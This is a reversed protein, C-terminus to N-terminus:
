RLDELVHKFLFTSWFGYYITLGLLIVYSLCWPFLVNGLIPNLLLETGIPILFAVGSVLLLSVSLLLELKATPAMRNTPCRFGLRGFYNCVSSAARYCGVQHGVLMATMLSGYWLKGHCAFPDALWECLLREHLLEWFLTREETGYVLGAMIPRLMALVLLGTTMSSLVLDLALIRTLVSFDMVNLTGPEDLAHWQLGQQFRRAKLEQEDLVKHTELFPSSSNGHTKQSHMIVDDEANADDNKADDKKADYKPTKLASETVTPDM